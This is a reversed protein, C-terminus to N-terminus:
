YSISGKTELLGMKWGMYEKKGSIIKSKGIKNEKRGNKLQDRRGEERGEKRRKERRRAKM